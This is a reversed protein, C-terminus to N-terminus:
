GENGGRGKGGVRRRRGGGGGEEEEEEGVTLYMQRRYIHNLNPTHPTYTSHTQTTYSLHNMQFNHATSIVKVSFM